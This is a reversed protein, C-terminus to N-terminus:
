LGCHTTQGSWRLLLFSEDDIVGLSIDMGDKIKDKSKVFREEVLNRCNDLIRSPDIIFDEYLSKSLAASCILSVMAGPIGHGTCDAVAFYILNGVREFWYFDGSVIDKPKFFIFSNPFWTSILDIPPLTSNQLREAYLISQDIDYHAESLKELSVELQEKQTNIETREQVLKELIINKNKIRKNASKVVVFMLTILLVFYGSYALNSRYIPPKISFNFVLEDSVQDFVNKAKVKLQYKGERLNYFEVENTTSWESWSAMNGDLKYSFLVKDEAEFDDSTFEFSVHNQGYELQQYMNYYQPIATRHITSSDNITVKELFVNIGRLNKKQSDYSAIYNNGGAWFEVRM